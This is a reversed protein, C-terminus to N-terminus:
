IQAYTAIYSNASGKALYTNAWDQIGGKPRLERGSIGRHHVKNARIKDPPRRTKLPVKPKRQRHIRAPTKLELLTSRKVRKIKNKEKGPLRTKLMKQAEERLLGVNKYSGATVHSKQDYARGKL